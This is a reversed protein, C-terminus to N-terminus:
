AQGRQMLEWENAYSQAKGAHFNQRTELLYEYIEVFTDLEAFHVEHVNYRTQLQEKLQSLRIQVDTFAYLIWNLDSGALAHADAMDRANYTVSIDKNTKVMM